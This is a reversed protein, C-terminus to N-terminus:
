LMYLFIIPNIHRMLQKKTQYIVAKKPNDNLNEYFNGNLRHQVLEGTIFAWGLNLNFLENFLNQEEDTKKTLVGLRLTKIENKM